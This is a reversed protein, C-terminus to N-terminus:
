RNALADDNAFVAMGSRAGRRAGTLTAIDIVSAPKFREVYTLMAFCLDERLMLISSEVTQGSMTTVIDGPKSRRWIAYERRSGHRRHRQTQTSIRLADAHNLYRQPVACTM